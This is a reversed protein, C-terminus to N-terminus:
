GHMTRGALASNPNHKKTSLYPSEAILCKSTITVAHNVLVPIDNTGSETILYIPSNQAAEATYQM